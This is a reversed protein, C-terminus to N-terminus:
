SAPKNQGDGIATAKGKCIEGVLRERSPLVRNEIGAQTIHWVKGKQFVIQQPNLIVYVVQCRNACRGSQLKHAIIFDNECVAEQWGGRGTSRQAAEVGSIPVPIQFYTVDENPITHYEVLFKTVAFNEAKPNDIFLGKIKISLTALNINRVVTDCYWSGVLLDYM